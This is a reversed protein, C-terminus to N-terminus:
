SGRGGSVPAAKKTLHLKWNRGPMIFAGLVARAVFQVFFGTNSKTRLTSEFRLVIQKSSPDHKM